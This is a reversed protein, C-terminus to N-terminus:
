NNSLIGVVVRDVNITDKRAYVTDFGADSLMESVAEAQGEGVEFLLAGGKNLCDKWHTIIARYFKLGDPGGDLAWIPEHDRVSTDLTMIESSAIYPPNSIIMDFKGMGYPPRSLADAQKTLIRSTYGFKDINERCVQLALGSIDIANLKSAPFEHALAIAICGSGCCLDLIRANMNHGMLIEKATNIIVETDMRPILVDPTVKLELGYFEATGTIYEVPEGRLNRNVFDYVRDSIEPSAYLNLDRMLQSVTKGASQAVLLRADSSYTESGTERLMKRAYIYLDNYTNM